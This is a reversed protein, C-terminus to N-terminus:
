YLLTTNVGLASTGLVWPDTAAIPGLFLSSKWIYAGNSQGISHRYGQIEWDQNIANGGGPPHRKITVRDTVNHNLLAPWAYASATRPDISMEDIRLHPSRYQNLLKQAQGSADVEDNLLVNISYSRIAYKAVSDPDTVEQTLGSPTTIIIDNRIENKTFSVKLDYYPLETDFGTGSDGYVTSPSTTFFRTQRDVFRAKGDKSIYFLGLESAAVDLCHGLVSANLLTTAAVISQGGDIMRDGEPFGIADLVANIRAGTTQAEFALETLIAQNLLEFRDVATITVESEAVQGWTVPWEEVYGAYLIYTTSGYKALIRIPTLPQINPYYPSGDYDPEFRRDRNDLAVTCTSAQVPTLEHNRGASVDITRVYDTIDFFETANISSAASAGFGMEVKIAPWDAALQRTPATFGLLGLAIDTQEPQGVMVPGNPVLIHKLELAIFWWSVDHNVLLTTSPSTDEMLKWASEMVMKYDNDFSNVESLETYGAEPDIGSDLNRALTATVVADKTVDLFSDLTTTPTKGFGTLIKLQAIANSGNNGSLKTNACELVIIRQRQQSQGAYDLTLAGTTPSAPASRFVSLRMSGVQPILLAETDQLTWTAGMGTITPINPLDSTPVYDVNNTYQSAVFALYFRNSTATVSNTTFNSGGESAVAQALRNTVLIDPALAKLEIGIAVWDASGTWTSTISTDNGAKFETELTTASATLESLESWSGSADPTVTATGVKAMAGFAANNADGFASMNVTSTTGTGSNTPSQVIANAGQTGTVEGGLIKDVSIFHRVSAVPAAVTIAQGGGRPAGKARYVAISYTGNVEAIKVWTGLNGGSVAPLTNSDKAVLTLLYLDDQNPTITHTTVWSSASAAGQDETWLNTATIAM